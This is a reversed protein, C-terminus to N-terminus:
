FRSPFPSFINVNISNIEFGGRKVYSLANRNKKLNLTSHLLLTDGYWWIRDSHQTKPYSRCIFINKKRSTVCFLMKDTQMKIASSSCTKCFTSLTTRRAFSLKSNLRPNIVKKFNCFKWEFNKFLNEVFFMLHGIVPEHAKEADFDLIM